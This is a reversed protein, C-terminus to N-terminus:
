ILPHDIANKEPRYRFGDLLQHLIAPVQSRFHAEDRGQMGPRLGEHVVGMNMADDYFSPQGPVSLPPYRTLSLKEKGYLHEGPQEPPLEQGAEFLGIFLPLKYKRAPDRRQLLFLGELDQELIEICVLPHNGTFGREPACFRHHIIESALGAPNGDRVLSQHHQLIAPDGETITIASVMIRCLEHGQIGKLEDSAKQQVDQGIPEHLDPVVADQAVPLRRPRKAREINDIWGLDKKLVNRYLFLIACLAQNQTSAAVRKEVALYSLFASVQAEGMELPHKRNHFFIFRKIWHVYTQETRYSMHRVRLAARVQDLLKPKEM